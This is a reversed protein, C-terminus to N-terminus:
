RRGGAATVTETYLAAGEADRATFVLQPSDGGTIAIEGYNYVGVIRAVVGPQLAPPSRAARSVPGVQWEIFGAAHHHAAFWHQDASLFVVGAVGADTLAAFIQDRESKFLSWDDNDNGFDLPISTFVLKFTAPSAVLGDLLWQRQEAGLMTKAPNDPANNASRYLRTDLLFLEALRGWRWSRYRRRPESTDRVPFWEDWVQVAAALREPENMAFRADWNNKGEHDDWICRLGMARLLPRVRPHVRADRHKVRYDDVTIAAPGNDAYPWDGLSV